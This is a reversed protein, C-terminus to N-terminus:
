RRAPGPRRRVVRPQGAIQEMAAKAADGLAGARTPHMGVAAWVSPHQTAAWAAWRAPALDDAVTVAGAVGVSGATGMAEAIEEATRCGIADLHTHADIVPASLPPPLPVPRWEPPERWDSPAGGPAATM